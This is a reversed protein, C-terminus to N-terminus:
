ANEKVQKKGTVYEYILSKKYQELTELQKRKEEIAKDIELCKEDLFSAIILQEEVPPVFITTNAVKDINLNSVVAGASSLVFQIKSNESM